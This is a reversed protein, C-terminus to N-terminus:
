DTPPKEDPVEHANDELEDDSDVSKNNNLAEKILSALFSPQKLAKADEPHLSYEIKPRRHAPLVEYEFDIEEEVGLYSDSIVVAKFRFRGAHSAQNKFSEITVPEPKTLPKYMLVYNSESDMIFFHLSDLKLFPLRHSHVYGVSKRGRDVEIELTYVDGVYINPDNSDDELKCFTKLKMSVRPIEDLAAEVDARRKPSGDFLELLRERAEPESLVARFALKKRMKKLDSEEVWPLQLFPSDHLELGQTLHQAFRLCTQIANFRLPKNREPITVRDVVFAHMMNFISKTIRFSWVLLQVQQRLLVEPVEVRSMHAHLMYFPKLFRRFREIKASPVFEPDRIRELAPLESPLTTRIPEIEKCVSIVEIFNKFLLNEKKLLQFFEPFNSKAVGNEDVADSSEYFLFVLYPIVVLLIIFFLGLIVLRNEKKLLFNPLAIGVQYGGGGGDPSGFKECNERSNEDTLCTYAKTLLMFKQHVDPDGPNLDPHLRRAMKKFQSKIEEQSATPSLEMIEYPDFSKLSKIERAHEVSKFLFFAVVLAFFVKTGLSRPYTRLRKILPIKSQCFSCKCIPLCASNATYLSRLSRLISITLPILISSLLAIGFFVFASDDYQLNKDGENKTFTDQFNSM